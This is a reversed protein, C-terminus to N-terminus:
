CDVTSQRRRAEGRRLNAGEGGLATHMRPLRALLIRQVNPPPGKGGSRVCYDEEEAAGYELNEGKSNDERSRSLWWGQRQEENM